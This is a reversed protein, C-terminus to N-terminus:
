RAEKVDRGKGSHASYLSPLFIPEKFLLIMLPFYDYVKLVLFCRPFELSKQLRGTLKSLVRTEFSGAQYNKQHTM